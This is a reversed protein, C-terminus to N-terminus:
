KAVALVIIVGVFALFAFSAVSSPSAGSPGGTSSDGGSGAPAGGFGLQCIVNDFFWAVAKAIANWAKKLANIIKQGTSANAASDAPPTEFLIRSVAGQANCKPKAVTEEEPPPEKDPGGGGRGPEKRGPDDVPYMPDDIPDPWIDEPGVPLAPQTVTVSDGCVIDGKDNYSCDEPYGQDIM